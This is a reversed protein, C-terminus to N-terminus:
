TTAHSEAEAQVERQAPQSPPPESQPSQGPTPDPKTIPPTPSASTANPSPTSHATVAEHTSVTTVSASPETPLNDPTDAPERKPPAPESSPESASETQPSETAAPEPESSPPVSRPVDPASFSPAPRSTGFEYEPRPAPEERKPLAVPTVSSSQLKQELNLRVSTDHGSNIYLFVLDRLENKAEKPLDSARVSALVQM